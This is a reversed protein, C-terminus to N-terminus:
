PSFWLFPKGAAFHVSRTQCPDDITVLTFHDKVAMEVVEYSGAPLGICATYPHIGSISKLFLQGGELWFEGEQIPSDELRDPATARSYTGDGRFQYYYGEEVPDKWIGILDEVTISPTPTETPAETPAEVLPATTPEPTATLACGALLVVLITVISLGPLLRFRNM